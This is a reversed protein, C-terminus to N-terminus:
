QKSIFERLSATSILRTGSKSGTCRVLHSKIANNKILAYLSRSSIGFVKAADSPKLFEPSLHATNGAEIPATTQTNQNV